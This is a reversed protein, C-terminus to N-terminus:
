KKTNFFGILERFKQSDKLKEVDILCDFSETRSNKTGFRDYLKFETLKYFGNRKKRGQLELYEFHDGNKRIIAAHERSKFYYEKGPEVMQLLAEVNKFGNKGIVSFGGSKTLENLTENDGFFARSQRARYDTVNYGFKNAIYALAQSSCAGGVKDIAGIKKIIQDETLPKKLPKAEIYKINKKQVEKILKGINRERADREAQLEMKSLHKAKVMKIKSLDIGTKLKWYEDDNRESNGKEIGKDISDSVKYANKKAEPYKRFLKEEKEKTYEKLRQNEADADGISYDWNEGINRTDNAATPARTVKEDGRDMEYKSIFEKECLCGFGNPPSHKEWWPDNVPLVTGNWHKHEERSGPLMMCVYKAHTFVDPLARAQREQAAAAATLMNTQYIVKSRWAGYKPKEMKADFSPDAARWKSAIKYFNDRFDQLSDGKEIARDVANRFDLLIDARMAGAVTFARTHMAGKLSNWRKTPINIKQKFYDVAEKYAGQKFGLEKAM